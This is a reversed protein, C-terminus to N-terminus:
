KKESEKRGKLSTAIMAIIVVLALAGFAMYTWKDNM